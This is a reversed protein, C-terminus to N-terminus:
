LDLLDPLKIRNRSTGSPQVRGGHQDAQEHDKGAQLCEVDRVRTGASISVLLALHATHLTHCKLDTAPLPRCGERRQAGSYATASRYAPPRTSGLPVAALGTALASSVLQCAGVTVSRWALTRDM